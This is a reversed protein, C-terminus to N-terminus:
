RGCKQGTRKQKEATDEAGRSKSEYHYLECYPTWVINYGAKRIRMCMDVDNFAVKFSEDLGEVADWVSRRLMVCAATVCSYNQAITLRLM